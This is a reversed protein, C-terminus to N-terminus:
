KEQEAYGIHYGSGDSSIGSFWMKLKGQDRLVAAVGVGSTLWQGTDDSSMIPFDGSNDWVLGEASEAYGLSMVQGAYATYFMKFRNEDYIVESPVIGSRQWPLERRASLVIGRKSWEIGDTSTMLEVDFPYDTISNCVGVFLYYLSGRKLVSPTWTAMMTSSVPVVPRPNVEWNRGDSSTAYGIGNRYRLPTRAGAFWMKFIGEDYVVCPAWPGLDMWSGKAGPNIVPGHKKWTIGDSSTAYAIWFNETESHSVSRNEGSSYWMHYLGGIKLVVPDNMYYTEADWDDEGRNLVPNAAYQKWKNGPQRWAFNLTTPSRSVSVSLTKSDVITLQTSGSYLVGGSETRLEVAMRWSGAALEDFRISTEETRTSLRKSRQIPEKGTGEMTVVLIRTEKPVASRDFSVVVSGHHQPVLPSTSAQRPFCMMMMGACVVLCFTNLLMRM